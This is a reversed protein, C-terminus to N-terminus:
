GQMAEALKALRGRVSRDIVTDGARIVAGGLLSSDVATQLTVKRDLKKSLAEALKTQLEPSIEFASQVDVDIAKEQNAKYLEFLAQVQALLDLRNNDALVHLFNQQKEGLQDGCVEIFASAKENATLAPSSLVKRISDQLSVNAANTLANSWGQLDGGDRAFEFAARAYPRALTILEAM